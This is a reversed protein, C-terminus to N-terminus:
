QIAHAHICVAQHIQRCERPLTQGVSLAHGVVRQCHAHALGSRLRCRPSAVVAGGSQCHGACLRFRASPRHPGIIARNSRQRPQWTQTTYEFGIAVVLQEFGELCDKVSAANLVDCAKFHVGAPLHGPQKRQAVCVAYGKDLLHAVTAQGVAGYGLVLVNSDM